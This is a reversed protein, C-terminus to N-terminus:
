DETRIAVELFEGDQKALCFANMQESTGQRVACIVYVYGFWAHSRDYESPLAPHDPHSHYYGLVDCGAARAEREAVLQFDPPVLYRRRRDDDHENPAARVATVRWPTTAGDGHGIIAGCAECPYEQEGHRRIQAEIEPSLHVTAPGSM